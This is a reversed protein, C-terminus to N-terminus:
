NQCFIPQAANQAIEEFVWRTVRYSVHFSQLFNASFHNRLWHSRVNVETMALQREVAEFKQQRHIFNM